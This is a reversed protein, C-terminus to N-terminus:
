IHSLLCSKNSKQQQHANPPCCVEHIEGTMVTQVGATTSSYHVLELEDCPKDVIQSVFTSTDSSECSPELAIEEHVDEDHATISQFGLIFADASGTQKLQALERFHVEPDKRDFREILSQTFDPYSIITDHGLTVLGHYWREHDERDLHLTDLKIANAKTM